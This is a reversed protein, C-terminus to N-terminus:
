KKKKPLPRVNTRLPVLDNWLPDNKWWVYDRDTMKKPITEIDKTKAVLTKIQYCDYTHDFYERLAAQLFYEGPNDKVNFRKREPTEELKYGYGTIRKNTHGHWFQMLSHAISVIGKPYVSSGSRKEARLSRLQRVQYATATIENKLQVLHDALVSREAKISKDLENLKEEWAKLKKDTPLEKYGTALLKLRQIGYVQEWLQLQIKENIVNVGARKLPTLVVKQFKARHKKTIYPLVIDFETM